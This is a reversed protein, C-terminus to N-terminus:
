STESDAAARRAFVVSLLYAVGIVLTLPVALVAFYRLAVVSPFLFGTLLAALVLTSVAAWWVRARRGLSGPPRRLADIAIAACVVPVGFRVLLGTWVALPTLTAEGHM